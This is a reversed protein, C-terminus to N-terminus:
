CDLFSWWDPDRAVSQHYAAREASPANLEEALREAVGLREAILWVATVIRHDASLPEYRLGRGLAVMLWIQKVDAIGEHRDYVGMIEDHHLYLERSLGDIRDILKVRGCFSVGSFQLDAESIGEALSDILAKLEM